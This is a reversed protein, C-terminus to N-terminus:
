AVIEETQTQTNRELRDFFADITSQRKAESRELKIDLLESLDRLLKRLTEHTAEPKKLEAVLKKFLEEYATPILTTIKKMDELVLRRRRENEKESYDLYEAELMGGSMFWRRVKHEGHNKKFEKKLLESVQKYTSGLYRLEIARYHVAQLKSTKTAKREM